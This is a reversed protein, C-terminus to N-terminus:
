FLKMGPCESTIVEQKEWGQERMCQNYEPEWCSSPSIIQDYRKSYHAGPAKQCRDFLDKLKATCVADATEQDDAFLKTKTWELSTHKIAPGWFCCGSLSLSMVVLLFSSLRIPM